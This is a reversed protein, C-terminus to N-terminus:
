LAEERRVQDYLERRVEEAFYEAAFMAASRSPPSALPARKAKEAEATKIYGNDAM